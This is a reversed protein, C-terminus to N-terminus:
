RDGAPPASARSSADVSSVETTGPVDGMVRLLRLAACAAALLKENFEASRSEWPGVCTSMQDAVIKRVDESCIRWARVADRQERMLKPSGDKM